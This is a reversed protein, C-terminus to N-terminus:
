TFQHLAKLVPAYDPEESINEVYQVYRLVGAADAIFVARTLLALSEIFVGFAPGFERYKFDSLMGM